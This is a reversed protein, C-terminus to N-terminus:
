KVDTHLANGMNKANNSQGLSNIGWGYTYHHHKLGKIYKIAKKRNPLTDTVGPIYFDAAKGTMHRSQASSGSLMANFERCRLGSTITMPKGYHDRIAQINKLENVRMWTPYGSCFRGGCGCRFEEPKFNKTYLKVHHLHRLLRDTNVGYIGDWDSKRLMYRKQMKLINEKSYEGLGCYEFWKKRTDVSLLAM